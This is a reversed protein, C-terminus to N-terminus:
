CLKTPLRGESKVSYFSENKKKRIVQEIKETNLRKRISQSIAKAQYSRSTKLMINSRSLYDLNEDNYFSNRLQIGNSRDTISHHKM